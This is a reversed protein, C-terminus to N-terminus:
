SDEQEEEGAPLDITITTGRGPASDVAVCGNHHGIIAAVLALGLGMGQMVGRTRGSFYPDFVRPLDEESIGSGEDTITLRVFRGGAGNIHNDTSILVNEGRIWIGGGEPMSEFSNSLIEYLCQSIQDFNALVIWLDDPLEINCDVREEDCVFRAAMKVLPHLDLLQPVAENYSSFALFKRTLERAAMVGSVAKELFRSSSHQEPLGMAALEVNGIIGMLLNNFDHAVGGAMVAVMELKQTRLLEREIEKRHTIDIDYKIMQTVRGQSDLVPYGHVEVDREQGNVTIHCDEFVVPESTARVRDLPCPTGEDACPHPYERSLQHCCMAEGADDHWNGAAINAGVIRYTEIDIIYFPHPLANIVTGLFTNQKDLADRQDALEAMARENERALQWKRALAAASQRIEIAEFPKKLVLLNDSRIVTEQFDQWSYDSYATIIVYQLQDDERQMKRITEVGDLGPPIRIDVYVLAYPRGDERARRVMAVGEEGQLASDIEWEIDMAFDTHGSEGTIEEVLEELASTDREPLLITKIDEHIAKNDDVILIRKKESM